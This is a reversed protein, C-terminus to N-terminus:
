IYLAKSLNKKLYKIHKTKLNGFLCIELWNNKILYENNYYTLINKTELYKGIKVSNLDNPIKIVFIAQSSVNYPCATTINNENLFNRLMNSLKNIKKLKLKLDFNKLSLLLADLLNSSITFPVNNKQEYFGIDLYKPLKINPKILHNKFIISIGSISNLGKNSSSSALYVDKLNLNTLGFSSICDCCIKISKNKCIKKIQEIDNLMGTSTESHVFWIWKKNRLQTEIEKYNFQTGWKNKILDFKLNFRKAHDILREGFAGNSLILGNGQILSIQAAIADNALTGSGSMLICSKTNAIQYLLKETEKIKKIFNDSRHSIPKRKLVKLINPNFNVPGPLFSIKRNFM